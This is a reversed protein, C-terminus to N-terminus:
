TASSTRGFHLQTSQLAQTVLGPKTPRHHTQSVSSTSKVAMTTTHRPRMRLPWTITSWYQHDLKNYTIKLVQTAPAAEVAAVVVAMVAAEAAAVVNGMVVALAVAEM